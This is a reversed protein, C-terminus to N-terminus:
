VSWFGKLKTQKKTQKPVAVKKKKSKKHEVETERTSKEVKKKAPYPPFGLSANRYTPIFKEIILNYLYNNKYNYKHTDIWSILDLNKILKEGQYLKYCNYGIWNLTWVFPDKCNKFDDLTAKGRFILYALKQSNIKETQEISQEKTNHKVNRFFVHLNSDYVANYYYQQIDAKTPPNLKIKEGLKSINKNIQKFDNVIIILPNKRKNIYNRLIAYTRWYFNDGELVFITNKGIQLSDIFVSVLEENNRAYSVVLRLGLDEALKKVLFSKGTGTKGYLIVFRNALVFNELKKYAQVQPTFLL